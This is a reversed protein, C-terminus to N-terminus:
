RQLLFGGEEPLESDWPLIPVFEVDEDLRMVVTRLEEANEAATAVYLRDVLPVLDATIIGAANDSGEVLTAESLELSLGVEYPALAARMEELFTQLNRAKVTDGYDIKDLKGETPYSVDTLLIEDFGLEALEVAMDCLYKRAGEKAPDLWQTNNGDYFIFGGTNKLGMGEVDQNAAKSDRFCSLRAISYVPHTLAADLVVNSDDMFFRVSGEVAVASDFHVTGKSDKMTIAMPTHDEGLVEEAQRNSLSWIERDTPVPLLVGKLPAEKKAEQITLNLEEEDEEPLVAKETERGPLMLQPTGAGDYVVYKQLIMFGISALIILVLVVALLTKGKSTRGRYNNYGRYGSM